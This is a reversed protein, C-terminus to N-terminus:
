TALILPHLQPQAVHLSIHCHIPWFPEFWYWSHTPIHNVQPLPCTQQRTKIGSIMSLEFNCFRLALLGESNANKLIRGRFKKDPTGRVLEPTSVQVTAKIDEAIHLHRAKLVIRNSWLLHSQSRRSACLGQKLNDITKCSRMLYKLLPITKWLKGFCPRDLRIPFSSWPNSHSISVFGQADYWPM